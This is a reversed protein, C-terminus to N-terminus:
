IEIKKLEAIKIMEKVNNLTAETVEDGGLMRGIQYEKEEKTLMRINTFTKNEKVMKSVFYHYDSLIAIQPLHTICLVQHNKSVQYMKEGVRKAVVGSIGTDIEDFILTAIEDKDAFVCKLALMIRSLEGGSLIKELPMLPEGPNTSIMFCVNDFGRSNFKEERVISIEMTSKELGVFSLENLINEKLETSKNVRLEHLKLSVIEMEKIIEQKKLNLEEIIKESNILDNYQVKIKDYYELVEMITTGYKKKYQNIEYIRANIKELADDDYVVEEAINRIDRSVEEITYFAEEILQRNKKVKEFNNEINSLEQIVKSISNIISNEGDVGNLLTYSLNLSNSIKEANSLLNFKEKLNEEEKEKLKGKEIDEIQFKLYDLLKDRDDNGCIQKIKNEIKLLSEKLSSFEELHNLIEKGIFEDLYLIHSNRQLLTQNQHQGHIDLLRERIKKLQSALFTKGNVKILSRGSQHTERSVILMDDDSEIDLEILVNKLLSNEITFIAEVYTKDEGTRILSKSFKGGLVYDIADILISKGAGTEGSLINFGENFNMTIEQILAFNKINLQILM